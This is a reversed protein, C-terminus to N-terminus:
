LEYCAPDDDIINLSHKCNSQSIHRNSKIDLLFKNRSYVDFIRRVIYHIFIIGCVNYFSIVAREVLMM